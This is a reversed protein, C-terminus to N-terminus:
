ACSIKGEPVPKKPFGEVGGTKDDGGYLHCRPSLLRDVWATANWGTATSEFTSQVEVPLVPLPAIERRYSGTKAYQAQQLNRIIELTKRVQLMPGSKTWLAIVPIGPLPSGAPLETSDTSNMCTVSISEVDDSIGLSEASKVLRTLSDNSVLRGDLFNLPKMQVSNRCKFRAVETLASLSTSADLSAANGLTLLLPAILVLGMHTNLM